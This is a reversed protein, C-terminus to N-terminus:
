WEIRSIQCEPMLRGDSFEYIWGTPIVPAESPIYHRSVVYGNIAYEPLPIAWEAGTNWELLRDPDIQIKTLM